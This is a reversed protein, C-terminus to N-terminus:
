EVANGWPRGVHEAAIAACCGSCTLLCWEGGNHTHWCLSVEERLQLNIVLRTDVFEDMAQAQLQTRPFGDLLHGLEGRQRGERIRMRILQLCSCPTQQLACFAKHPLQSLSRM